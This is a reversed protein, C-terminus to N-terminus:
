GAILAVGDSPAPMIGLSSGRGVEEARPHEFSGSVRSSAPDFAARGERLATWRVPEGTDRTMVEAEITEGVVRGTSPCDFWKPISIWASAARASFGLLRSSSGVTAPPSISRSSMRAWVPWSWCANSRGSLHRCGSSMGARTDSRRRTSSAPGDRGQALDWRSRPSLRQPLVRSTVFRLLCRPLRRERIRFGTPGCVFLWQLDTYCAAGLPGILGCRGGATVVTLSSRM